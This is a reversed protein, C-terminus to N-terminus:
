GGEGGRIPRIYPSLICLPNELYVEPAVSASKKSGLMGAGNRTSYFCTTFFHESVGTGDSSIRMFGAEELVKFLKRIYM